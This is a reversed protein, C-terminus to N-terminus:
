RCGSGESLGQSDTRSSRADECFGFSSEGRHTGEDRSQAPPSTTPQAPAGARSEAATRQAEPERVCTGRGRQELSSVSWHPANARSGRIRGARAARPAKSELPRSDTATREACIIRSVGEWKNTCMIGIGSRDGDVTRKEQRKANFQIRMRMSERAEEVDQIFVSFRENNVDM